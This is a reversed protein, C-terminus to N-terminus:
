HVTHLCVDIEISNGSQDYLLSNLYDCIFIHIIVTLQM